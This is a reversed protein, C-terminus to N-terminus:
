VDANSGCTMPVFRVPLIAQETLEGQKKELLYIQQHRAPGVPLLM